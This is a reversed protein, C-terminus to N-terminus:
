RRGAVLMSMRGDLRIELDVWNQHALSQAARHASEANAEAAIELTADPVAHIAVATATITPSEQAFADGAASSVGILVVVAALLALREETIWTKMM